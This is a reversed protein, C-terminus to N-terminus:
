PLHSIFQSFVDEKEFGSFMGLLLLLKPDQGCLSQSSPFSPQALVGVHQELNLVGYGRQHLRLLGKRLIDFVAYASHLYFGVQGTGKTINGIPLPSGSQLFGARFLGENNGGNTMM